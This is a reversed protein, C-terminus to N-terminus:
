DCVSEGPIPDSRFDCIEREGPEIRIVQMNALFFATRLSCSQTLQNWHGKESSDGRARRWARLCRVDDKVKQAERFRTQALITSGTASTKSLPHFANEFVVVAEFGTM